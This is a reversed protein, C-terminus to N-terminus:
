VSARALTPNELDNFGVVKVTFICHSRSSQHNLETAAIHLNNIGAQMITLADEVNDV